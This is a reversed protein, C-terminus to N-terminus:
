LDMKTKKLLSIKGSNAACADASVTQGSATYTSSGGTVTGSVVYETSNKPCKNTAAANFTVSLSTTGGSPSWTITGGGGALSGTAGSATKNTKSAPKCKSITFTGSITGSLKACAPPATAGASTASLGVAVFSVPLAVTAVTAAILFLRKM